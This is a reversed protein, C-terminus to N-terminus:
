LFIRIEQFVKGTQDLDVKRPEPLKVLIQTIIVQQTRIIGSQDVRHVIPLLFGQLFQQTNDLFVKGEELPHREPIPFIM